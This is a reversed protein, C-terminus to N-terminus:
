LLAGMTEAIDRAEGSRDRRAIVRGIASILMEAEEHLEVGELSQDLTLYLRALKAAEYAQTMFQIDMTIGDDRPHKDM